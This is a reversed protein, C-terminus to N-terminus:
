GRQKEPVSDAMAAERRVGEEPESERRETRLVEMWGYRDHRRDCQVAQQQQQQKKGGPTKLNMTQDSM